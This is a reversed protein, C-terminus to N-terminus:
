VSEPIEFDVGEAAFARYDQTLEEGPQIDRAAINVDEEVGDRYETFINPADSHNFYVGDGSECIYRGTQKSIYSHFLSLVQSRLPEPLQEVEEKTYAKDKGAVFQWVITGKPIFQDAFLGIGGNPITSPGIKTKVLLM